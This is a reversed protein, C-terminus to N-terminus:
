RGRPLLGGLDRELITFSFNHLKKQWEPDAHCFRVMDRLDANWRLLAEADARRAVDRTYSRAVGAAELLAVSTKVDDEWQRRVMDFQEKDLASCNLRIAAEGIARDVVARVQDMTERPPEGAATQGTAAQLSAILFTVALFCRMM